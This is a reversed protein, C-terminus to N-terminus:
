QKRLIKGTKPFWLCDLDSTEYVKIADEIIEILPAGALNLSTNLLVPCGTLEKFARLLEYLHPISEDVTQVRCSGDVHVVSPIEEAKKCQFSMTMFEAETLGHTEFYEEFHEKLICAAFPRYWERRKILNVIDKGDPHRPDFLISRNGLARPGSEAMSNFVAVTKGQSLLDAIQYTECKDGIDLINDTKIGHFFTTKLPYITDDNSMRRYMHMAAGISNGSDDALPEFYFKAEPLNKVYYENAVVNLGYGGTICINVIGTKNIWKKILDLSVQQTQKQVQFAYDAYHQYNYQNLNDTKSDKLKAYLPTSIGPAVFDGHIFLHDMPRGKYFFDDFDQDRGYAALGMTKGNELPNEGILSTATEYVKVISMTSDANYEHGFRELDDLAQRKKPDANSGIDYCWFNKQLTEFECPYSAKIVSEAERMCQDIISGNRDIVFVLAQDFGSNYFALSAHTLHHAFNYDTVPCKLIKSIETTIFPVAPDFGTPSAIVAHDIMGRYRDYIMNLATLPPGDRKIRTYREEKLFLEIQGDNVVAVSSDHLPSIGLIRM